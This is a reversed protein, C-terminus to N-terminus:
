SIGKTKEEHFLRFTIGAYKKLSYIINEAESDTISELGKYKRIKEKTLPTRETQEKSKKTNNQKNPIIFCIVIILFLILLVINLSKAISM